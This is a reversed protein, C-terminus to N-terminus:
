KKPKAVVVVRGDTAGGEKCTYITLKAEDSKNEIETQNPKVEFTDEVIYFFYKGNWRVAVEDGKKVEKLNYFYSKENVSSPTPGWVFSHASLIFNGGIEPNGREAFRHWAGKELQEEGGEKIPVKIDASKIIVMNENSDQVQKNPLPLSQYIKPSFILIMLYIGIAILALSLIIFMIKKISKKERKPKEM